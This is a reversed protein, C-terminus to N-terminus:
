YAPTDNNSHPTNHRYIISLVAENYNYVATTPTYESIEVALFPRHNDSGGAVSLSTLSAASDAFRYTPGANQGFMVRLRGDNPESRPLYMGLIDGSQFQLPPDITVSYLQSLSEPAATQETSAIRDYFDGSSNRRWIQLQPYNIRNDGGSQEVLGLSWSTILGACSFSYDPFVFQRGDRENQRESLSPM